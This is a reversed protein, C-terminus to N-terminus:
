VTYTVGSSTHNVFMPKGVAKVFFTYTGASWNVNSLAYSRASPHINDQLVMLDTGNTSVYLTFHDLTNEAGSIAWTLTTGTRTFSTFAVCNDIGTELGTGEEHDDWTALQVFPLQVTQYNRGIINWTNLWTTGCNQNIVRNTGWSAESDDFGKKTSGFAVKSQNALATAYFSQLYAEGWDNPDAFSNTIWSFAGGSQTPTTFGSQNQLIWIPNVSQVTANAAVTTWNIGASPQSFFFVYPRSGSKLYASSSFRGAGNLYVIHDILDQACQASTSCTFAGVDIMTAYKFSGQAVAEAVLKQAVNESHHGNGYWDHIVGKIGRSKMDTVMKTAQTTSNNLYGISQHGASGFWAVAHAYVEATSGSPLLTHVNVKSVNGAGLTGNPWGAFADAMSTNNGTEAALTTSPTISLGLGCSMTRTSTTTATITIGTAFFSTCGTKSIALAYPNRNETNTGVTATNYYRTQPVVIAAAGSANTTGTYATGLADTLTVNAGVVPSGASTVNVTYTWKIWIEYAKYYSIVKGDVDSLLAGNAVQCDICTHVAKSGTAQSYNRPAWTHFGSAPLPGKKFITGNYTVSSPQSVTTQSEDEVIYTDAELTGGNFTCGQCERASFAIANGTSSSNHRLGRAFENSMVCNSTCTRRLARGDCTRTWARWINDHWNTDVTGTETQGGFVGGAQCGNYEYNTAAGHVDVTNNYVESGSGAFIGRGSVTADTTSYNNVTNHHVRGSGRLNICFDNTYRSHGVCSSNRIESLPQGTTMGGIITDTIELGDILAAAGTNGDPNWIGYSQFLDRRFPDTVSADCNIRSNIVQFGPTMSLGIGAGGWGRCNLTSGRVTLGSFGRSFVPMAFAPANAHPTIIVNQLVMGNGGTLTNGSNRVYLNNNSNLVGFRPLTYTYNPVSCTVNNAPKTKWVFGRNNDSGGLRGHKHDQALEYHTGRTKTGDSCTITNSINTVTALTADSTNNTPRPLVQSTSPGVTINTATSKTVTFNSTTTGFTITHCQGELNFNAGTAALATGPCSLDANLYYNGSGYNGCASILTRGATSGPVCATPDPPPQPPATVTIPKEDYISQYTCRINASGAAVATIVGSSSVTAVSASSSTWACQDTITATSADSMTRIATYQQTQGIERTSTAPSVTVSVLTPATVTLTKENYLGSYTCRIASTGADVGTATAGSITAISPTGSTWVCLNTLDTTSSDSMIGTASFTQTDGTEISPAAPSVLISSLTIPVTVSMGGQGVVSSYECQISAFGADVATALGGSAVTAALTNTSSWTCLDTVNPHSGDSMTATATFQQTNPAEVSATLPTVVVAMVVPPIVELAAQGVVSQYTCRVNSVGPALATAVSSAMTAISTNSSSWACDATIDATSNDSMLKSATYAQTESVDLTASAPSVIVAALVPVPNFKNGRKGKTTGTAVSQGFACSLSAAVILLCLSKKM